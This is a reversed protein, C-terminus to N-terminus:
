YSQSLCSLYQNLILFKNKNNFIEDMLQEGDYEDVIVAFDNVFTTSKKQLLGDMGILDGEENNVIVEEQNMENFVGSKILYVSKISSDIPKSKVIKLDSSKVTCGKLLEPVLEHCTKWLKQCNEPIDLNHYM